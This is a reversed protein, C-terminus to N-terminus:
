SRGPGLQCRPCFHSSRGAVVARRIATGCRACGKGERRYVRHRHQYKGRRGQADVYNSVSSGRLRIADRLISQMARHLRRLEAPRLRSAVRQPHIRARWLAEDTYINGMGRLVRQDLLLAKIMARRGGIRRCFEKVRIELADPGLPALIERLTAESALVMWGFRRLDAYRLEHGADLAFFVHTHPAVREGARCPTLRGTMGLHIVLHSPERAGSSRALALVIFKGHRAVGAIRSGPLARRLAAPDDIFDTKHLRVGVITRGVVAARLGRVVTEVEPLEPM